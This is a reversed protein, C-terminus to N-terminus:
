IIKTQATVFKNRFCPFENFKLASTTKINSFNKLISKKHLCHFILYFINFVM